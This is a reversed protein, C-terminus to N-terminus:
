GLDLAALHPDVPKVGGVTKNVDSRFWEVAVTFDDTWDDNPAPPVPQYKHMWAAKTPKPLLWRDVTFLFKSWDQSSPFMSVALIDFSGFMYGRTQNGQADTGKRSKDTEVVFMGDVFGSPPPSVLPKLDQSRQLKVQVRVSGVSDALQFDYSAEGDMPTVAWPAPLRPIVSRRFAHEALIGPIMRRTLPGAHSLAVILSESSAGWLTELPHATVSSRLTSLVQARDAEPLDQLQSYVREEAANVGNLADLPTAPLNPDSLRALGEWQQATNMAQIAQLLEEPTAM